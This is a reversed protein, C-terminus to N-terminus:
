KRKELEKYFWFHKYGVIYSIIDMESGSLSKNQTTTYM